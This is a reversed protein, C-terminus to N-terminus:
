TTFWESVDEKIMDKRIKGVYVGQYVYECIGHVKDISKQNGSRMIVRDDVRSVWVHCWGNRRIHNLILTYYYGYPRM